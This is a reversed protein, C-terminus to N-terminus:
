LTVRRRHRFRTELHGATSRLMEVALALFAGPLFLASLFTYRDQPVEVLMVLVQSALFFAVAMVLLQIAPSVRPSRPAPGGSPEGRGRGPEVPRLLMSGLRVLGWLLFSVLLAIASGRQLRDKALLDYTYRCGDALWRRYLDPRARIMALSFRTYFRNVKVWPPPTERPALSESDRLARPAVFHANTNYEYCWRAYSYGPELPQLNEHQRWKLLKRAFRRYEAPLTPVAQPTVMSATIGILNAGGFSVLGFHGVVAWRLGCWLLFPVLSLLCLGTFPRRLAARWSVGRDRLLTLVLGLLPVLVILFLCAPRVQYTYFLALGLGAWASKSAPRAVVVLLLALTAVAAGAALMDSMIRTAQMPIMRAFLLPVAAALATLRSGSSAQVAAGFGVAAALFVALQAHAVLSHDGALRRVVELFIPYGPTRKLELITALAHREFKWLYGQTDPAVVSGFGPAGVRAVFIAIAMVAIWFWASRWVAWSCPPTM